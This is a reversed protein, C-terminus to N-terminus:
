LFFRLWKKNGNKYELNFEQEKKVKDLEVLLETKHLVLEDMRKNAFELEQELDMISIRLKDNEMTLDEIKTKFDVEQEKSYAVIDDMHSKLIEMMRDMTRTHKDNNTYKRFDINVIIKFLPLPHIM